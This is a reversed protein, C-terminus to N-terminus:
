LRFIRRQAASSLVVFAFPLNDVLYRKALKKPEQALRHVWELGLVQMSSPARKVTGAAFSFSVGVGFFWSKPFHSRLARIVQEQKPSGLGVFILDPAPGISKVMDAVEDDTPPSKVWPDSRGVVRLGSYRRTLEDDAAKGTGPDGGLLYVTRRERAARESLTYLLTSGAIRAPLPDGQIHSAWVLPMGDAVRVDADEYLDRATADKSHRRLIDLNATVVWGGRGEDLSRFIHHLLEAEDLCAVKMGHIDVELIRHM